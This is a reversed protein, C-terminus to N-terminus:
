ESWPAVAGADILSRLRADGYGLTDSLFRRTSAPLGTVAFRPSDRSDDRDTTWPRGPVRLPEGDVSLTEFFGRYELQPDAFLEDVHQLVGMPIGYERALETLEARTRERFWPIVLDDVEDPYEIAMAYLDSYRPEQAWAPSGMMEVFRAWDRRTRAIVAVHGDKCPFISMPYRGGSGPARRGARKLPVDYYGYVMGYQRMYTAMVDALSIEVATGDGTRDGNLLAAVTAGAANLAHQFETMGFPLVLPEREPEGVMSMGGSLAQATLEEGRWSAREGTAGFPTLHVHVGGGRVTETELDGLETLRDRAFDTIVVAASAATERALARGEATSLDLGVLTKAADAYADPLQGRDIVKVTAAGCDALLKGCIAAARGDAIEVVTIGELFSSM